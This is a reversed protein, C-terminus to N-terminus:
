VAQGESESRQDAAALGARLLVRMEGSLSRDHEHAREVLEQKLAVPIRAIVTASTPETLVTVM